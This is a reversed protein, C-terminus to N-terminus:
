AEELILRVEGTGEGTPAPLPLFSKVTWDKGNMTLTAGELAVVAVYAEALEVMRVDAAPRVTDLHVDRGTMAGATMDHVAALEVTTGATDDLVLTAPVGLVAAVPAFLIGDWDISM